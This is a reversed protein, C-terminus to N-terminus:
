GGGSVGSVGSVGSPVKGRAYRCPDPVKASRGARGTGHDPRVKLAMPRALRAFRSRGLQALRGSAAATTRRTSAMSASIVELPGPAM